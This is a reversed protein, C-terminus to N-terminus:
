LLALGLGQLTQLDHLGETGAVAIALHVLRLPHDHLNDRDGRRFETREHWQITAAKGSGIKVVEVATDDDAVVAQLPKDLDLCGLHDEAVLLTHQM